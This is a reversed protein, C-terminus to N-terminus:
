AARSLQMKDKSLCHQIDILLLLHDTLKGIGGIFNELTDQSGPSPDIQERNLDMVAQVSDVIVGIQGIETEVVIICTEKTVEADAMSLRKRLNVVPIVKGRLNMVGSVYHPADPVAAIEGMRNIERVVGIPLGYSMSGLKFTLYQGPKMEM